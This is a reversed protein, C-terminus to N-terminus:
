SIARKKRLLPEIGVFDSLVMSRYQLNEEMAQLHAQYYYDEDQCDDQVPVKENENIINIEDQFEECYAITKHHYFEDILPFHEALFAILDLNTKIERKTAKCKQHRVESKGGPLLILM